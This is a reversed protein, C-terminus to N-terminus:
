AGSLEETSSATVVTAEAPESIMDSEGIESHEASGSVIVEESNGIVAGDTSEASAAAAAASDKKSPQAAQKPAPRTAAQLNGMAFDIVHGQHLPWLLDAGLAQERRMLTEAADAEGSEATEIRQALLGAWQKDRTQKPHAELYDLIARFGEAIPTTSRDLYKPRVM